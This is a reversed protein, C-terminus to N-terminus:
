NLYLRVWIQVNISNQTELNFYSTWDRLRMIRLKLSLSGKSWIKNIVLLIFYFM